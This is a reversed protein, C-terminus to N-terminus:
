LQALRCVVSVGPIEKCLPGHSSTSLEASAFGFSNPTFNRRAQNVGRWIASTPTVPVFMFKENSEKLLKSQSTARAGRELVEVCNLGHM